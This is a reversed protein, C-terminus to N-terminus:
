PESVKENPETICSGHKEERDMYRSVNYHFDGLIDMFLRNGMLLREGCEIKVFHFTNRIKVLQMVIM